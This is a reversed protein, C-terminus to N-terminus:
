CANKVYADRSGADRMEDRVVNARGQSYPGEVVCFYGDRFNPYDPDSTDVVFGGYINTADQADQRNTGCLAIAYWGCTGGGANQNGAGGKVGGNGGANLGFIEQIISDHVYGRQYPLNLDRSYQRLASKTQDGPVGDVSGANYGYDNLLRQIDRITTRSLASLASQDDAPASSKALLIGGENAAINIGALDGAPSSNVDGARVLGPISMLAVVTGLALARRIKPRDFIIGIACAM